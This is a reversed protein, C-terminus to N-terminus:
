QEIKDKLYKYSLLNYDTYPIITLVGKTKGIMEKDKNLSLCSCKAKGKSALFRSLRM